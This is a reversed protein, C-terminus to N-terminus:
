TQLAFYSADSDNLPCVGGHLLFDRTVGPLGVIEERYATYLHPPFIDLDWERRPNVSRLLGCTAAKDLRLIEQMKRLTSPWEGTLLTMNALVISRLTSSHRSYFAILEGDNTAMDQFDVHKLIPWTNSNIVHKLEAAKRVEPWPFSVSLKELNPSGSLFQAVVNNRVFLRWERIEIGTDHGSTFRLDLDRLDKIALKMKGMDDPSSRFFHWDIGHVELRSLKLDVDHAALLVSRFQDAGALGDSGLDDSPHLLTADFNKWFYDGLASCTDVFSLFVEKLSPLQLMAQRLLDMGYERARLNDQLRIMEQYARYGEELQKPSYFHRPGDEVGHSERDHDRMERKSIGEFYRLSAQWEARTPYKKLSNAQYHLAKVYQSIVPHKSIAVLRQFSAPTFILNATPLLYPTALYSTRRSSLRLNIIDSIDLHKCIM